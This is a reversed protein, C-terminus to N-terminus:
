DHLKNRERGKRSGHGGSHFRERDDAHDWGPLCGRQGRQLRLRRECDDATSGGRDM